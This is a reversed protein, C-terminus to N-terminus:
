PLVRAAPWTRLTPTRAARLVPLATRGGPNTRHGRQDHGRAPRADITTRPAECRTWFDTLWLLDPADLHADHGAGPVQVMMTDPRIRAMASVDEFPIIGSEALVVLTPCALQRWEYWFSRQAIETLSRAMLDPEFRPWWGDARKELGAAWAAGAPGGGFFEAAAAHSAFPVPWSALWREVPATGAPDGGGPGAEVMVLARVLDPRATTADWEEFHGALGHLLVVPPTPGLHDRVVLRVGDRVLTHEVADMRGTM